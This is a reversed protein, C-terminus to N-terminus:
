LVKLNNIIEQLTKTEWDTPLEDFIERIVLAQILPHSDLYETLITTKKFTDIEDIYKLHNQAEIYNQHFTKVYDFNFDGANNDSVIKELIEPLTEKYIESLDINYINDTFLTPKVFQEENVEHPNRTNRISFWTHYMDRLWKFNPYKRHQAPEELNIKKPFTFFTDYYNVLTNRDKLSNKDLNYFDIDFLRGFQVDFYLPWKTIANINGLEYYRNDEASIQIILPDKDFFMINCVSRILWPEDWTNILYIMKETPQHLIKWFMLQDISCHTPLRHHLHATGTGGYKESESNNIPDDVTTDKLLFDSKSLCWSIYSGSYGAPYLIYINNKM